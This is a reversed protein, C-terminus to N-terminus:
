ILNFFEQADESPDLRTFNELAIDQYAVVNAM